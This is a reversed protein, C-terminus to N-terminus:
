LNTLNDRESANSVVPCTYFRRRFTLTVKMDLYGGFRCWQSLEWGAGEFEQVIVLCACEWRGLAAIRSDDGMEERVVGGDRVGM